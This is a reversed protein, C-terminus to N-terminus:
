VFFDYSGKNTLDKELDQHEPSSGRKGLVYDLSQPGANFLLDIVSLHPVFAGFLQPYVPHGYEQFAVAIDHQRFLDVDLFRKATQGDYLSEAGLALCISLLNLSKDKTREYNVESSFLVRKGQIGLFHCLVRILSSDLDQLYRFDGEICDRIGDFYDSFCPARQYSERILRIHRKKWARDAPLPVDRILTRTPIKGVPVTLYAAGNPTKIRNRNRWDQKTYQVDNYLVFVDVRYMQEFFGLWPLYGPQLIGVKM